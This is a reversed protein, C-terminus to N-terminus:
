VVALKQRVEPLHEWVGFGVKTWVGFFGIFVKTEKANSSVNRFTGRPYANM